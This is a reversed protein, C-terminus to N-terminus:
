AGVESRLIYYARGISFGVDTEDRNRIGRQDAHAELGSARLLDRLFTNFLQGRRKEAGKPTIKLHRYRTLLDRLSVDDM